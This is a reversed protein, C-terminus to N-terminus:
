KLMEILLTVDVIDVTGDGNVDAGAEYYDGSPTIGLVLNRVIM